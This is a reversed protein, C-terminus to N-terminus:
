KIVSFMLGSGPKIKCMILVTTGRTNDFINVYISLYINSATEICMKQLICLGTAASIDLERREEFALQCLCVCVCVFCVCVAASGVYGQM